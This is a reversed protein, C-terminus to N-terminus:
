GQNVDGYLDSMATMRQIFNQATPPQQLIMQAQQKKQQQKQIDLQRQRDQQLQQQQQPTLGGYPQNILANRTNAAGAAGQSPFEGRYQQAYPNTQYEPAGPNARIKEQEYASMQYPATLLSEPATLGRAVAGGVARAGNALAGGGGALINKANAVTEGLTPGTGMIANKAANGMSGYPVGHTLVGGVDAITKAIPRNAIFQAGQRALNGGASVAEPVLGAVEKGVTAMQPTANVGGGVPSKLYADPDFGSASQNAKELDKEKLYEDPDFAM